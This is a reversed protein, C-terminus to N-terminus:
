LAGVMLEAERHSGSGSGTGWPVPWATGWERRNMRSGAVIGDGRVKVHNVEEDDPGPMSM